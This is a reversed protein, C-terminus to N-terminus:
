RPCSVVLLCAAIGALGYKAANGSVPGTVLLQTWVAAMEAVEEPLAAPSSDSGSLGLAYQQLGQGSGSSHYLAAPSSLPAEASPLASCMRDAAANVQAALSSIMCRDVFRISNLASSAFHDQSSLFSVSQYLTYYLPSFAGRVASLVEAPLQEEKLRRESAGAREWIALLPKLAELAYKPLEQSFPMGACCVRTATGQRAEAAALRVAYPSKSHLSMWASTCNKGAFAQTNSEPAEWDFAFALEGGLPTTRQEEDSAITWGYLAVPLTQYHGRLVVTNTVIAQM